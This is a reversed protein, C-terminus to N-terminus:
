IFEAKGEEPQLSLGTNQDYLNHNILCASGPVLESIDGAALLAAYHRNFINVSYRGAARYIRRDVNGSQLSAILEASEECPIYVTKTEDNILHFAKAVTRFPLLCGHIGQTLHKITQTQDINEGRFARLANFYRSLTEPNGPDNSGELAEKAAGINVQLLPPAARETEFIIVHSDAAPRRGERNCRGAAQVISDLGSLERYVCPFDLDVGAEVLSTSIVRCDEGRKLRERITQLTLQRHVPYMLTSLHFAGEQPLADFLEKAAKRTNVVCLVQKQKELEEKLAAVTKKGTFTYQVRKLQQFLTERNSCIERVQYQPAYQSLLDSIFPQTATCLVASCRFGSVLTGIAAVCPLLHGIPIMQAEDFVIVSNAINHLKRCKSARNSYLSEFFQVATTVIVPADWNEAALASRREGGELDDSGLSESQTHHEIVNESGLVTRFVAANQEIISTYPVVYIVRNCHHLASHCLAFALSALTKGGGTPVTLSFLGKDQSAACICDELVGHRLRNLPTDAVKWEKFYCNLREWLVNSSDYDGRSTIGEQMFSETDLYDADVLCSYLMRCWFSTYLGQGLDPEKATDPLSGEWGPYAVGKMPLMKKLRGVLTSDGAMDAPSGFDPLGSHHGAVCLAALSAGIASCELAGATSHDVRAGGQLRKQFGDSYKGIDHALGVLKGHSEAGFEAAFCSALAATGDLHDKVSQLVENGDPDLRKHAAYLKM